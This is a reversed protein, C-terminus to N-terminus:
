KYGVGYISFHAADFIVAKESADYRAGSLWEVKGSADVYVVGLNAITEDKAATYPLAIRVTKGGLNAVQTEKGGKRDWLSVDYVPREGIAAKAEASSVSTKALKIVVDGGTQQDLAKLSDLSFTLDALRDTDIVFQKVGAAVLQDLAAAKLTITASDLAQGVRVPVVVAVGNSTNGHKKADAEAADIAGSVDSKTVSAEGDSDTKVPKTQVTTPTTTDGKDPRDVITSDDGGPLIGGGGGSSRRSVTVECTTEVANHNDDGAYSATFTYTQSTNPLTATWTGDEGATLQISEDSCSLSAAGSEPVGDVSLTIEGGGTLETESSTLTLAPTAKEIALMLTATAPNYTEDEAKTATITVKGAKHITATKGDISLIDPDNSAFTVDGNGSGGTASLEFSADGYTKAGPDTIAFADQAQKSANFTEEKSVSSYNDDGSYAVTLTYNQDMLGTWTYSAKGDKLDIEQKLDTGTLTIKGTPVDGGDVKGASVAIQAQRNNSNGSLVVDVALAPEAQQITLERKATAPNYNEDEAKTATITVTGAKHITATTGSISLIDPASSTFTVDGNGSGGTASLEFSADGYTKAGPDIIAIKEQAKKSANFSKEVATGKYNNDGSYTVTLTYNQDKLGTWTYSAKGDKLDIEQKLDTGTLTIKGTPVAGGAVKDLSVSIKAQRHNSKGSLAVDVTLAPEAQAVSVKVTQETTQIAEYNNLTNDNPTFTVAYGNNNVTPVTDENTWAFKGFETSGGTLKSDALTQGYTIASATPWDIKPAAARAIEFTTTATGEYNGTGTVTVKADGANVNDKFAVTYDDATLTKEGLKITVEPEIPDGTYSYSGAVTVTATDLLAKAITPTVDVTVPSFNKNAPTFTLAIKETTDADLVRDGDVDEALAWSGDVAQGGYSVSGGDMELESVKTGYTGSLKPATVETGDLAQGAITLTVPASTTSQGISASGGYSATFAYDGVAWAQTQVYFATSKQGAGVTARDIEKGNCYLIVTNFDYSPTSAAQGQVRSPRRTTNGTELNVAVVTPTIDGIAKETESLKMSLSSNESPTSESGGDFTFSSSSDQWTAIYSKRNGDADMVVVTHSDDVHPLYLYLSDDHATAIKQNVGDVLVSAVNSQNELVTKYVTQGNSNKVSSLENGNRDTLKASGGNVTPSGSVRGTLVGGNMTTRNGSLIKYNQGDGTITLQGGNMTISDNNAFLGTLSVTGGNIVLKGNWLNTYNAWEETTITGGNIIANYDTTPYIGSHSFIAGGTITGGNITVNGAQGGIGVYAWSKTEETTRLHITGSNITISGFKKEFSEIMGIGGCIYPNALDLTLTGDGEITLSTNENTQIASRFHGSPKLTSEGELFLTVTSKDELLIPTYYNNEGSNAWQIDADRLIISAETGAQVTVAASRSEITGAYKGTLVIKSKDPDYDHATGDVTYSDPGIVVTSNVQSLDLVIEGAPIVSARNDVPANGSVVGYLSGLGLLFITGHNTLSGANNIIGSLNVVADEENTFTGSNTLIVGEPINLISNNTLTGENSLTANDSINLTGDNVLTGGEVITVDQKFTTSGVVTAKKEVTGQNNQITCGDLTGGTMTVTAGSTTTNRLIGGSIILEGGSKYAGPGIGGTSATVDGGAITVTGSQNQQSGGEWDGGGGIAAAGGSASATVTGSEITIKGYGNNCNGGIGAGYTVGSGGRAELAGEGRITLSTGPHVRIAAANEGSKLKSTGELILTLKAGDRLEIANEYQRASISLDRITLEATVNEAVIIRDQSSSGSVTLPTGTQIILTTGSYTYDTDQVGGYVTFAGVQVGTDSQTTEDQAPENATPTDDTLNEEVASADEAVLNEETVATDDALNEEAALTPAPLTSLIMAGTMLLATLRQRTKRKM